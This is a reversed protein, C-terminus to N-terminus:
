PLGAGDAGVDSGIVVFFLAMFLSAMLVPMWVVPM